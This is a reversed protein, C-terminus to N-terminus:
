FKVYDLVFDCCVFDLFNKLKEKRRQFLYKACKGRLCRCLCCGDWLAFGFIPPLRTRNNERFLSFVSCLAFPRAAHTREGVAKRQNISQKIAKKEIQRPAGVCGSTDRACTNCTVHIGHSAIRTCTIKRSPYDPYGEVVFHKLLCFYLDNFFNEM